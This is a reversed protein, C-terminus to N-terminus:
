LLFPFLLLTLLIPCPLCTTPHGPLTSPPHSLRSGSPFGPSYTQTCKTGIGPLPVPSENQQALWNNTIMFACSGGPCGVRETHSCLQSAAQPSDEWFLPLIVRLFWLVCFGASYLVSITFPRLAQTSSEISIGCTNNKYRQINQPAKYNRITVEEEM